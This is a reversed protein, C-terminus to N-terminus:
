FRLRHQFQDREIFSGSVGGEEVRLKVISALQNLPAKDMQGSRVVVDALFVRLQEPAQVWLVLCPEVSM